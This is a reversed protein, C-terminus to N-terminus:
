RELRAPSRDRRAPRGQQLGRLRLNRVSRQLDVIQEANPEHTAYRLAVYRRIVSEIPKSQEHLSAQVRDLYDLPGQQVPQEFGARSLRRRFTYWVRDLRDGSQPSGQRLAWITAATLLTLLIGILAILLQHQDAKEIGFPKFLQRQRLANFQVITTTWLRSVGDVSNRLSRLWSSQYWAGADNVSAAGLEVRDPSVAATPDVRVWGSGELWVEAWAHADSNRILLYNGSDNWWGGQYGTVVRAPIGAARMLFVFASSYHECFGARTDFLFEDISERGLLPPSLTYHFSANFLQLASQIVSGDKIPTDRSDSNRWSRALAVSRPDFGIPLALARAREGPSLTPALQYRTASRLEIQRPQTVPQDAVVSRDSDLRTTEPAALPVDLAPIWRQQSPELTETYNFSDSADAIIEPQPAMRAAGRTWTSGDFDWMIITRFYLDSKPPPARDFTVRFAPSDDLLVDTMSGPQMRESLGVRSLNDGGPSGWIPSSLRPILLFGALAIPIGTALLIAGLAFLSRLPHATPLPAPQLSILAALVLVLGMSMLTTIGIGQEFLLATMLVFASFALAFRADRQRETELLKLVLLGTALAAGPERGFINGYHQVILVLLLLALPLRLWGSIPQAGRRRAIVWFPVIAVVPLALWLPVRLVHPLLAAGLAIALLEFQRHSLREIM